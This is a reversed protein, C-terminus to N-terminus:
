HTSFDLSARESRPTGFGAARELYRCGATFDTCVLATLEDVVMRLVKERLERKEGLLQHKGGTIMEVRANPFKSRLSTLNHKWDVVSDEDGQIIVVPNPSPPYGELRENWAILAQVWGMPAIRPQLPDSRVFEAFDEDSTNDRFVRPVDSVLPDFLRAAFTSVEWHASRVLPAVLVVRGLGDDGQTLLHTIVAAAGTSHAVVHCPPPMHARCLSLFDDFATAYVQFDTIDARPGSSLGHGPLDFAAVAFGQELLHRIALSLTGTHDFYGHVVIVTARAEAPRFTQAALVQSGSRFTGFAHAAGPFNLGYFDLYATAAPMPRPPTEFDLPPLTDRLRNLAQSTISTKDMEVNDAWTPPWACAQCLVMALIIWRAGRPAFELRLKVGPRNTSIPRASQDPRGSKAPVAPGTELRHDEVM